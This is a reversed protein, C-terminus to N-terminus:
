EPSFAKFMRELCIAEFMRGKGNCARTLCGNGGLRQNLIQEATMGAYESSPMKVSLDANQALILFTRTKGNDSDRCSERVSGRGLELDRDAALRLLPTTGTNDRNNPNAKYRLLLSVTADYGDNAARDLATQGKEDRLNADAGARILINIAPRNDCSDASVATMLATYKGDPTQANVKAGRSLLLQAMDARNGAVLGCRTAASVGMPNGYGLSKLIETENNYITVANQLPRAGYDNPENPDAGQDLQRKVQDIDGRRIAEGFEHETSAANASQGLATIMSCGALLRLLANRLV